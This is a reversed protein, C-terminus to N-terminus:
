FAAPTVGIFLDDDLPPGGPDPFARIFAEERVVWPVEDRIPALRDLDAQQTRHAEMAHWKADAFARVDVIAGLRDPTWREPRVALTAQYAAFDPMLETLRDMFEAVVVFRYCRKVHVHEGLQPWVRAVGALEIARLARVGAAIHDPHGYGGDPGWIIVVDPRVARLWSVIDRLVPEEPEAALAGDPYRLCRVSALGLRRGAEELERERTAGLETREVLPAGAPGLEGQEGRTLCLSHCEVGQSTYRLLTGGVGFTEDDPHALITALRLSRTPRVATVRRVSANAAHAAGPDHDDLIVWGDRLEHREIQLVGSEDNLVRGVAGLSAREESASVRREHDKVEPEGIRVPERQEALQPLPGVSRHQREGRARVIDLLDIAEVRAQIVVQGLREIRTLKHRADLCHKPPRVAPATAPREHHAIDHEVRRAVLHMDAPRRHRQAGLLELEEFGEAALRADHQRPVLQQLVHPAERIRTFSPRDIDM